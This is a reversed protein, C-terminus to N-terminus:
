TECTLHLPKGPSAEAACRTSGAKADVTVPATAPIKEVTLTRSALGDDSPTVAAQAVVRGDVSVTVTAVQNAELGRFTVDVTVTDVASASPDPLTATRTVAFAPPRTDDSTILLVSAVGAAASAAVVLISAVRTLPARVEFRRKYWREVEKLNNTNLGRTVTLIQAALACLVALFALVVAGVALVRAAGGLGPLGATALGLGTLLTGVVSVTTVVRATAADLRVLSKAPALEDALAVLERQRRSPPRVPATATV